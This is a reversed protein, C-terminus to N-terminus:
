RVERLPATTARQAWLGFTALEFRTEAVLPLNKMLKLAKCRLFNISLTVRYIIASNQFDFAYVGSIRDALQRLSLFLLTQLLGEIVATLPCARAELFLNHNLRQYDHQLALLDSSSLACPESPLSCFVSWQHLPRVHKGTVSSIVLEFRTHDAM